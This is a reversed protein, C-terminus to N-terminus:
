RRAACGQGGGCSGSRRPSPTSTRSPGTTSPASPCPSRASTCSASAAAGSPCRRPASPPRGSTLASPPGAPWPGGGRTPRAVDSVGVGGADARVRGPKLGVDGRRRHEEPILRRHPGPVLDALAQGALIAVFAGAVMSPGFPIATRRRARGVAMLGVGVVAGILFGLFGGVVVVGWGLWGLYMGLVGALKVDGFGMGAPYVLALLFYFAFLAVAGLVAGLLPSWTGEVGAAVALLALGVPYSPLTLVNPLRRTDLDIAALAVGIATLYLYAPLVATADFRWAMLAFLVGTLLEVLPYRPSIPEGCDRCSGRLLLWSLVPVNDRARVAHGCSPCHSGPRVISEGRPVRWIVVNLFSGVVLGLLGVAVVLLM